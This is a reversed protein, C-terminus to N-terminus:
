PQESKLSESENIPFHIEQNLIVSITIGSRSMGAILTKRSEHHSFLSEM